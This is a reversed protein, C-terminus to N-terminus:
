ESPLLLSFANRAFVSVTERSIESSLPFKIPVLSERTQNLLIPSSIKIIKNIKYQCSIVRFHEISDGQVQLLMVVFDFLKIAKM